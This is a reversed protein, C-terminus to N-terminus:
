LLERKGVSEVFRTELAAVAKMWSALRTQGLRAETKENQKALDKVVWLSPGRVGFDTKASKIQLVLGGKPSAARSGVFEM